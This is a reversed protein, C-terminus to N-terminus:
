KDGDDGKVSMPFGGYVDDNAIAPSGVLVVAAVSATKLLMGLPRNM